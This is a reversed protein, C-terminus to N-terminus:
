IKRGIVAYDRAGYFYDNIRKAIGAPEEPLLISAPYPHLELVQLDCFGRAEVFFRLMPSPLPHLHTPDMYFTQSGVLVNGPNPTELVIVGGSKLVRLSQDIMEVVRDFVLHEVLHFATVAGLSEDPLGRLHAIADGQCTELELAACQSLMVENRDVGRAFLDQERLLELWEGRGCGLDLVPMAASGIGWEKLLPIYVSQKSKIEGRTGRFADEFAVYLADYEREGEAVFRDLLKGGAPELLHKRAEEILLSVRREQLSLQERTQHTFLGLESVRSAVRQTQESESKIQEILHERTRSSSALEAQLGDQVTEIRQLGGQVTEIRQSVLQMSAKIEGSLAEIKKEVLRIPLGMQERLAAMESLLPAVIEQIQAHIQSGSEPVSIEQEIRGIREALDRHTQASAELVRNQARALALVVASHDRLQRSYWWLFRGIIRLLFNGFRGRFTPPMPPPAGIQENNVSLSETLREVEQLRIVPTRSSDAQAFNRANAAEGTREPVDAYNASVGQARLRVRDRIELMLKEVDVVNADDAPM